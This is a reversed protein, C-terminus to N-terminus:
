GTFKPWLQCDRESIRVRCLPLIDAGGSRDVDRHGDWVRLVVRCSPDALLM